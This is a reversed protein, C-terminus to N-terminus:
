RAQYVRASIGDEQLRNVLSEASPTDDFAGVQVKVGDPFERLYADPVQERVRNLTSVQNNYDVVVFIFGGYNADRDITPPPGSSEETAPQQSAEPTETPSDPATPQSEDSAEPTLLASINDLTNEAADTPESPTPATAAAPSPDEPTPPPTVLPSRTEPDLRSLTSLDLQIFEEAALDPSTPLRTPRSGTDSSTTADEGDGETATEGAFFRELGLQSLSEPNVLVYGLTATAALFLLVSGVGLATFRREGGDPSDSSESSEVTLGNVGPSLGSESGGSVESGQRLRQASELYTEPAVASESPDGAAESALAASSESPLQVGSADGDSALDPSVDWPSTEESATEPSELRGEVVVPRSPPPPPPPSMRKRHQRYRDLEADLPVDLSALAVQLSPHLPSTTRTPSPTTSSM